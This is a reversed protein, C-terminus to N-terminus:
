FRQNILPYRLNRTPRTGDTHALSWKLLGEWNPGDEAMIVILFPRRRRRKNVFAASYLSFLRALRNYLRIHLVLSITRSVEESQSLATCILNTFFSLSVTTPKVESLNEPGIFTPINQFFFRARWM